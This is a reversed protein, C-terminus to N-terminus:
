WKAKQLRKYVFYSVVVGLLASLTFSTSTPVTEGLADSIVRVSTIVDAWALTAPMSGEFAFYIVDQVGTFLLILPTVALAIAESKDKKFLYWIIGISIIVASWMVVTAPQQHEWYENWKQEDDFSEINRITTVQKFDMYAFVAMLLLAIIFVKNMLAWRKLKTM